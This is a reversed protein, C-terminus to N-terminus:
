VLTGVLQQPITSGASLKKLLEREESTIGLEHSLKMAEVFGPQSPELIPVAKKILKKAFSESHPRLIQAAQVLLHPPTSPNKLFAKGVEMLRAQDGLLFGLQSVQHWDEWQGTKKAGAHALDLAESLQGLQRKWHVVLRQIGPTFEGDPMLAKHKEVLALGAAPMHLQLFAEAVLHVGWPTPVAAIIEDAHATIFEVDGADAKARAVKWIGDERQGQKWEAELSAALARFDGTDRARLGQLLEQITRRQEGSLSPETLIGEAEDRRDQLALTQSRLFWWEGVQEAREYAPKAEDLAAAVDGLRGLSGLLMILKRWDQFEGSKRATEQVQPVVTADWDHEWGRTTAWAIAAADTPDTGLIGKASAEAETQRGPHLALSALHWASVAQRENKNLGPLALVDTFIVAAHELHRRSADDARVFERPLPCPNSEYGQRTKREALCLCVLCQGHLTRAMWTPQARAAVKAAADCADTTRDLALLARVALREFDEELTGPWDERRSIALSEEAAGRDLLLSARFLWGEPSVPVALLAFAADPGSEAWVLQAEIGEFCGGADEEKAASLYARAAAPDHRQQIALRSLAKLIRARVNGSTEDWRSGDRWALLQDWATGELGRGLPKLIAAIEELEATDKITAPRGSSSADVGNGIAIGTASAASVQLTATGVSATDFKAFVDEPIPTGLRNAITEVIKRFDVRRNAQAGYYPAYTRKTLKRVSEPLKEPLPKAAPDLLVPIILRKQNDPCPTSLAAEIERRVWDELDDLRTKGPQDNPAELWSTGILVLFAKSEAVKSLLTEDFEDGPPLGEKDQFVQGPFSANLFDFFSDASAVDPKSRYNIFIPFSNTM